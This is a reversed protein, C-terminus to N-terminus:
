DFTAVPTTTVSNSSFVIKESNMKQCVFTAGKAVATATSTFAAEIDEPHNLDGPKFYGCEYVTEAVLKAFEDVTMYYNPMKYGM